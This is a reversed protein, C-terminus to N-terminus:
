YRLLDSDRYPVSSPRDLGCHVETFSTDRSRISLVVVLSDFDKGEQNMMLM